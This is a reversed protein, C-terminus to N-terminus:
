QSERLKWPKAATTDRARALWGFVADAWLERGETSPHIKDPGRPLAAVLSDSDLYRCPAAHERIVRLLGTDPKWLPPSIWVCPRGGITAVLREIATVRQPPDPIELENAGLTVIVLDPNYNAVYKGLDKGFAWTPIYSATRFELVSRLGAAKFRKALPIGLAAAFSDGVHLVLTGRPLESPAPESPAPESPTLTAAVAPVTVESPAPEPAEPTPQAAAPQREGPADLPRDLEPPEPPPKPGCSLSCLATLASLLHLELRRRRRSEQM